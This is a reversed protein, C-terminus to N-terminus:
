AQSVRGWTNRHVTMSYVLKNVFELMACNLLHIVDVYSFHSFDPLYVCLTVFIDICNCNNKM